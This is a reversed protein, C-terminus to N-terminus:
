NSSCSAQVFRRWARVIQVRTPRNKHRSAHPRYVRESAHPQEGLASYKIGAVGGAAGSQRLSGQPYVDPQRSEDAHPLDQITSRFPPPLGGGFSDPEKSRDFILLASIAASIAARM